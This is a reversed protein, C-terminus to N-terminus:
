KAVKVAVLWRNFYRPNSGAVGSARMYKAQLTNDDNGDLVYDRSYIVPVLEPPATIRAKAAQEDSATDGNPSIGMLGVVDSSTTGMNAGWFALWRGNSLGTLTPGVTALDTMTASATAETAAIVPAAKFFTAALGRLQYTSIDMNATLWNVIWTSFENPTATPKSLLHDIEKATAEVSIIESL